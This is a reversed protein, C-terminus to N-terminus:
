KPGSKEQKVCDHQWLSFIETEAEGSVVDVVTSVCIDVNLFAQM